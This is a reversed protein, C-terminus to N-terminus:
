EVRPQVADEVDGAGRRKGQRRDDAAYAVLAKRDGFGEQAEREASEPQRQECGAGDSVELVRHDDVGRAELGRSTELGEVVLTLGDLAETEVPCGGNSACRWGVSIAPCQGRRTM